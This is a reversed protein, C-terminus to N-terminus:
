KFYVHSVIQDCIFPQPPQSPRPNSGNVIPCEYRIDYGQGEPSFLQFDKAGYNVINSYLPVRGYTYVAALGDIITTTAPPFSGGPM